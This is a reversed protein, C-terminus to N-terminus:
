RVVLWEKGSGNEFGTRNQTMYDDTIKLFKFLIKNCGILSIVM